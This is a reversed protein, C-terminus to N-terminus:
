ENDITKCLIRNLERVVRAPIGEFTATSETVAPIFGGLMSEALLVRFLMSPFGFTDLTLTRSSKHYHGAPEANVARSCCCAISFADSNVVRSPVEREYMKEPIFFFRVAGDNLRKTLGRTGKRSYYQAGELDQVSKPFTDVVKDVSPIASLVSLADFPRADPFSKTGASVYLGVLPTRDESVEPEGPLTYLVRGDRELAIKPCVAYCDDGAYDVVGTNVLPSFLHWISSSGYGLSYAGDLYLCTQRITEYRRKGSQCLWDYLLKRVQQQLSDTM